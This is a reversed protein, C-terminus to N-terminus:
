AGKKVPLIRPGLQLVASRARLQKVVEARTEEDVLFGGSANTGLALAKQAAGTIGGTRRGDLMKRGEPEAITM